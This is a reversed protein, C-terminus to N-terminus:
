LNLFSTLLQNKKVFLNDIKKLSPHGDLVEKLSFAKHFYSLNKYKTLGKLRNFLTDAIIDSARQNLHNDTKSIKLYGANINKPMPITGGRIKWKNLGDAPDLSVASGITGNQSGSM